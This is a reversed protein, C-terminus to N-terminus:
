ESLLDLVTSLDTYNDTKLQKIQEVIQSAEDYNEERIREKLQVALTRQNEVRAKIGSMYGMIEEEYPKYKQIENKIQEKLENWQAQYEKILEREATAEEMISNLKEEDAGAEVAERYREAIEQMKAKTEEKLANFEDIQDQYAQRVAQVNNEFTERYQNRKTLVQQYLEKNQNTMNRLERIQERLETPIQGLQSTGQLLNGEKAFVGTTGGVTFILVMTLVLLTKLTKKM